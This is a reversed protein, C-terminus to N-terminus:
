ARIAPAGGGRAAEGRSRGQQLLRVVETWAAVRTCNAPLDDARNWPQDFLVVLPVRAAAVVAEEVNDDVLAAFGDTDSVKAGRGCFRLCWYPVGYRGLWRITDGRSAVPRGTLICIRYMSALARVGAPAGDIPQLRAYLGARCLRKLFADMEDHSLGAVRALDYDLVDRRAVRINFERHLEALFPDVFEALVGDLDLAIAPLPSEVVM